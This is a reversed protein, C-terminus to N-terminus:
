ASKSSRVARSGALLVLDASDEVTVGHSMAYDRLRQMAEEETLGDRIFALVARVVSPRRLVRATLDAVTSCLERRAEFARSAILVAGYVGASTIPKMLHAHLGQRMAWDIRGPAESGILAIIPVPPEGVPWPFQGDYGRDADFFVVDAARALPVLTPWCQEASLGIKHLQRGVAEADRHPEHLIAAHWRQVPARRPQDPKAAPQKAQKM